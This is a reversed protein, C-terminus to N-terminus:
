SLSFLRRTLADEGGGAYVAALRRSMEVSQALAM